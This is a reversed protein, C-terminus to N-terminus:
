TRLRLFWIRAVKAVASTLQTLTLYTYYVSIKFKIVYVSFM